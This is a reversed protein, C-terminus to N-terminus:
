WRKSSQWAWLLGLAISLLMGLWLVLGPLFSLLTLGRLVWIMLTLAVVTVFSRFLLSDSLIRM